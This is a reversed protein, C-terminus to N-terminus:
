WYKRLYERIRIKARHAIVWYNASSIRLEKVRRLAYIHLFPGYNKSWLAAGLKDTTNM